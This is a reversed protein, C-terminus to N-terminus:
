LLGRGNPQLVSKIVVYMSRLHVKCRTEPKTHESGCSISGVSIELFCFHGGNLSFELDVGDASFTRQVLLALPLSPGVALELVSQRAFAKRRPEM